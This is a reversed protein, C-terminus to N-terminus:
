LMQFQKIMLLKNGLIKYEPLSTSFTSLKFFIVPSIAISLWIWKIGEIVSLRLLRLIKKLGYLTHGPYKILRHEATNNVM